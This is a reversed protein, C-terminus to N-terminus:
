EQWELASAIRQATNLETAPNPSYALGCEPTVFMRKTIEESPLGIRKAFSNVEGIIGKDSSTKLLIESSIGVAIKGDRDWHEAVLEFNSEHNIASFPVSWVEFGSKSLEGVPSKTACSHLWSTSGSASIVEALQKLTSVVFDAPVPESFGRGSRRRLQGNLALELGPEDIQIIVDAQPFLKKYNSIEATLVEILGATIDRVAGLDDVLREGSIPEIFSALSIPGAFQFKVSDTTSQARLEFTELDEGYWSKARRMVRNDGRSVRWGSPTTEISLTEDLRNLLGFTRGIMEGGPGREPLEPLFLVQPSEEIAIAIATSIDTGPMSGIGTAIAANAM